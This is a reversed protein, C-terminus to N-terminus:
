SQARVLQAVPGFSSNCVRISYLYPRASTDLFPSTDGLINRLSRGLKEFVRGQYM